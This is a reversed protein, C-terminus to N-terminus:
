ENLPCGIQSPKSNYDPVQSIFFLVSKRQAGGGACLFPNTLFLDAVAWQTETQMQAHGDADADANADANTEADTDTQTKANTRNNM